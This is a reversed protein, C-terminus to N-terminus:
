NGLAPAVRATAGAAQVVIPYVAFSYQSFVAETQPTLFAEALMALVDNSGNGLTICEMACGLQKSLAQKLQFGNGDPYLGLEQSAKAIADLARPGPGLPNENSALKISNGIGYERELEELPKGPVYPAIARVAPNALERLDQAM